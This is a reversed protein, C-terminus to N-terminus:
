WRAGMGQRATVDIRNWVNITAIALILPALASEDDHRAVEERISDAVYDLQASLSRQACPAVVACDAV